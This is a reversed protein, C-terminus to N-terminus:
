RLVFQLVVLALAGAAVGALYTQLRGPQTQRVVRGAALLARGIANVAGDVVVRDFADDVIAVGRVLLALGRVLGDILHTDIWSLARTSALLPRVLLRQSAADIGFASSLLASTRAFRARLADARTLDGAGYLARAALLGAISLAVALVQLSLELAATLERAAAHVPIAPALFAELVSAHRTWSEPSCLVLGGAISGAALVLLVVTMARPSEHPPEVHTSRPSGAFTLFYWRFMYFSTGLGSLALLMCLAPGLWPLVFAESAFMRTAIAEKSYFGSAVPLGAIALTAMLAALRTMPLYRGLGGLKRLDQQHHVAHLVSGAALFLCAKFLAHTVLHQIGASMAGTGVGAFMVGLQSVTSYALVRKLDTQVLAAAAGLLSTLVGIVAIATMAAPSALFVFHFRALLYVGATVMTAAHILASVPTPGAMADPLWIFLPVQASKGIAGLLLLFALLPLVPLGAFTTHALRFSLGTHPDLLLNRLELLDFTPSITSFSLALGLMLGLDGIRNVIFAKTAAAANALEQHWFGILAWSCLGVGEWGLFLLPGNAGLVLLLMASVFLNLWAFFRWQAPDESMYATAYLHILAGVHTIVLLLTASLPDLALAFDVRLTGATWMTFVDDRLFRHAPELAILHAFALEALVCSAVVAALAIAHIARAGLRTQLRKGALANLAAGALTPVLLWRLLVDAVPRVPAIDFALAM